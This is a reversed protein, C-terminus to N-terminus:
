SRGAQIKKLENNNSKPEKLDIIKSSPYELRLKKTAAPSTGSGSWFIFSVKKDKEISDLLTNIPSSVRANWIPSGVIIEDYDNLNINLKEIKDKYNILAKFGGSLIRLVTNKPLEEKTKIKEITYGKKKLYEAVVNGNGTLSYYIFLKKM